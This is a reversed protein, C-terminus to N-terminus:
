HQAERVDEGRRVAKHIAKASPSNLEGVLEVAPEDAPALSLGDLVVGGYAARLAAEAEAAEDGQLPEAHALPAEDLVSPPAQVESDPAAPPAGTAEPEREILVVAMKSRLSALGEDSWNIVVREFQELARKLVDYPIKQLARLGKRGLAHEVFALQRLAQRNDPLEDLLAALSPLIRQLEQQEKLRAADLPKGGRKRPAPAAAADPEALVLEIGREGRQVKLDAKFFARVGRAILTFPRSISAM